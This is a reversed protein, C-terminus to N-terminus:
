CSLSHQGFLNPGVTTIHTVRQLHQALGELMIFAKLHPPHDLVLDVVLVFTRCVPAVYNVVVSNGMGEVLGDNQSSCQFAVQNQCTQWM